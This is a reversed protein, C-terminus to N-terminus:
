EASVKDIIRVDSPLGEKIIDLDFQSYKNGSINLIKLNKLNGLEHPLGTLLNDSIDLIELKDLQGVEAPLGTYNNESIDLVKLNRLHRIEAPMAGELYNNSLLLVELETRSLVEVPFKSLKKGSYDAIKDEDYNSVVTPEGFTQESDEPLEQNGSAPQGTFNGGTQRNGSGSSNVFYTYLPYLIGALFVITAM